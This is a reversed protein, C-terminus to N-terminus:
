KEEGQDKIAQEARAGDWGAWHSVVLAYLSMFAIYPVSDKLWLITPVLMLAWVVMMVFHFKILTEPKPDPIRKALNM